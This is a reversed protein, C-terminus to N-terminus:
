MFRRAAARAPQRGMRAQTVMNIVQTSQRLVLGEGDLVQLAASMAQQPPPKM